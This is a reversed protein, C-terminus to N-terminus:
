APALPVVRAPELEVYYCCKGTEDRVPLVHLEQTVRLRSKPKTVTHSPDTPSYVCEGSEDEKYLTLSWQKLTRDTRSKLPCCRAVLALQHLRVDYHDVGGLHKTDGRDKFNSRELPFGLEKVTVGLKGQAPELLEDKFFALDTWDSAISKVVFTMANGDGDEIGNVSVGPHEVGVLEQNEEIFRAVPFMLAQVNRAVQLPLDSVGLPEDASNHAPSGSGSNSEQGQGGDDPVGPPEDASNHALSGSGSNSEQEHGGDDPSGAQVTDGGVLTNLLSDDQELEDDERVEEMRESEEVAQGRRSMGHDSRRRKPPPDADGTKGLNVLNSSPGTVMGPREPILYRFRSPLHGDTGRVKKEQEEKEEKTLVTLAFANHKEIQPALRENDHRRKEVTSM